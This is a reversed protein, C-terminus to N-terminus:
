AAEYFFSNFNDAVVRGANRRPHVYTELFISSSKWDGAEWRRESTSVWRLRQQQSRTDAAPTAPNTNSALESASQESAITQM